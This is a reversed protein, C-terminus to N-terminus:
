GLLALDERGARDGDLDAVRDAELVVVVHRVVGERRRLAVLEVGLRLGRAARGLDHEPGLALHGHLTREVGAHREGDVDFLESPVRGRLAAGRMRRIDQFSRLRRALSIVVKAATTTRLEITPAKARSCSPRTLAVLALTVRRARGPTRARPLMPRAVARNRIAVSCNTAADFPSRATALSRMSLASSAM